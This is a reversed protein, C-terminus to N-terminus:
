QNLSTYANEISGHVDLINPVSDTKRIEGNNLFIVRTCIKELESLIHSTIIITTGNLNLENILKRIEIIGSPDLGNTPEDLIIFKPKSIFTSAIALRQKLGTSLNKYRENKKEILGAKELSETIAEKDRIGKILATIRLNNYVTLDPDFGTSELYAGIDSLNFRQRFIVEGGSPKVLSLIISLMTTKGSGNPGIIGLIDGEYVEFSIKKLAEVKGYAKSVNKITLLPSTM